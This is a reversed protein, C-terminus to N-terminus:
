RPGNRAGRLADESVRRAPPLDGDCHTFCDNLSGVPAKDLDAADDDDLAVVRIGAAQSGHDLNDVVLSYTSGLRPEVADSRANVGRGYTRTSPGEASGSSATGRCDTGRALHRREWNTTSPNTRPERCPVTLFSHSFDSM